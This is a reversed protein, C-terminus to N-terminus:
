KNMHTNESGTGDGFPKHGRLTEFSRSKHGSNTSSFHQKPFHYTQRRGPQHIFAERKRKQESSQCGPVHEGAGGAGFARGRTREHKSEVPGGRHLGRALRTSVRFPKDQQIRHRLLGKSAATTCIYTGEWSLSRVRARGRSPRNSKLSARDVAAIRILQLATLTVM